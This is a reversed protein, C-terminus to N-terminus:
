ALRAELAAAGDAAAEATAAASTARQAAQDARALVKGLQGSLEDLQATAAELAGLTRDVKRGLAAHEAELRDLTERVDGLGLADELEDDLDDLPTLAALRQRVADLEAQRTALERQLQSATRALAEVEAPRVLGRAEIAEEVLDRLASEMAAALQASLVAALTDAAAHRASRLRSRLGM